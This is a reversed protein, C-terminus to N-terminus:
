EVGFQCRMRVWPETFVKFTEVVVAHTVEKKLATKLYSKIKEM